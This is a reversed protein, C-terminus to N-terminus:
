DKPLPVVDTWFAIGKGGSGWITLPNNKSMRHNNM